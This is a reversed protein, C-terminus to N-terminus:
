MLPPGEFGDGKAVEIYYLCVQDNEDIRFVTRLAPISRVADTKVLRLTKKGPVLPFDEANNRL